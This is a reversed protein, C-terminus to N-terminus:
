TLIPLMVLINVAIGSLPTVAYLFDRWLIVDCFWTMELESNRKVDCSHRFWWFYNHWCFYHWHWMVNLWFFCSLYPFLFTPTLCFRTLMKTPSFITVQSLSLWKEGVKKGSYPVRFNLSQLIMKYLCALYQFYAFVKKKASILLYLNM